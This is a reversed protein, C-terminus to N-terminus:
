PYVVQTCEIVDEGDKVFSVCDYELDNIYLKFNAPAIPPPEIPTFEQDDLWGWDDETPGIDYKFPDKKKDLDRRDINPDQWPGTINETPREIPVCVGDICSGSPCDADTTCQRVPFRGFEGGVPGTPGSRPIDTVEGPPAEELAFFGGGLIDPNIFQLILWYGIAILLGIIADTAYKKAKELTGTNGAATIYMFGAVVIMVVALLAALVISLKIVLPVYTAVTQEGEAGPLPQILTYGTSFSGGAGGASAEFFPLFLM